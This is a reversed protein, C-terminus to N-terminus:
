LWRLSSAVESQFTELPAGRNAVLITNAKGNHAILGSFRGDGFNDQNDITSQQGTPVVFVTLPGFESQMVLHLSKQGKFNCFTAYVIKGPLNDFKGGFMALKENVTQLSVAEQKELASQEYYVHALAHEGTDLPQGFGGFYFIVAAFFVSAAIAFPATARRFWSVKVVKQEAQELAQQKAIVKDALGEPVDIDLSKSLFDDFSQMEDVLAQLEPQQEAQKIVEEDHPDAVLRRRFELEDM